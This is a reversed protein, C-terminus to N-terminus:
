PTLQDLEGQYYAEVRPNMVRKWLPPILALLVMTPYGAPLQPATDHHRLVQYRRKAYAHHDSHRQLHFLFLNSLLHNSNWSHEPRTREYRGNPLKRRHLGYHELYNVIELLTFSVFAQGLFFMAGKWGWLVSFLVLWAASLAYWWILENKLSWLSLGKRALHAKQLKWANLFNHLYAHPLFAYLSQNYRASSADEPTSVNVHHGRLHEVKFGGYCIMSLLIGGVWQEYRTDKHILEHAVTIALGGVTGVSMLWGVAGVTSFPATTFIHAGWLILALYGPVFALTLLRYYMEQEMQPVQSAEDPNAPDQGLLADLIPVVGFVFLVTGWAFLNLHGWERAAWWSILPFAMPLAFLMYAYKKIHIMTSSPIAALM